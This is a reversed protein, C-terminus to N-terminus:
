QKRPSIMVRGVRCKLYWAVAKPSKGNRAGYLVESIDVLIFIVDYWYGNTEGVRTYTSYKIIYIALSLTWLSYLLEVDMILWNRPDVFYSMLLIIDPTEKNVPNLFVPTQSYWLHPLLIIIMGLRRLLSLWSYVIYYLLRTYYYGTLHWLILDLTSTGYSLLWTLSLMDITLYWIDPTLYWTDFSLMNLAPILYWTDPILHWTYCTLYRHWIDLTLYWTDLLLM